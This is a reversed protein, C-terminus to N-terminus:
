NGSAAASDPSTMYPMGVKKLLLVSPRRSNYTIRFPKGDCPLEITSVNREEWKLLLRLKGDTVPKGAKTLQGTLTLTEGCRYFGDKHDLTFDKIAYDGAALSLVAAFTLLLCTFKTM